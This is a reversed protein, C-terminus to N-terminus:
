ALRFRKRYPAQIKAARLGLMKAAHILLGRRSEYTREYIISAFTGLLDTAAGVTDMMESAGREITSQNEKAM